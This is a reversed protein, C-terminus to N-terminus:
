RALRWLQPGSLTVFRLLSQPEAKGQRLEDDYIVLRPTLCENRQKFNKMTLVTSEGEGDRFPVLDLV